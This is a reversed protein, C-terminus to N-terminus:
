CKNFYWLFYALRENFLATRVPVNVSVLCNREKDNVFNLQKLSQRGPVKFLEEPWHKEEVFAIGPPVKENSKWTLIHPM